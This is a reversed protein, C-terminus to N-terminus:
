SWRFVKGSVGHARDGFFVIREKQGKGLVKVCGVQMDIDEVHMGVVESVRCGTALFLELVANDRVNGM